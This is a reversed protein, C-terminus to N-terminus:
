YCFPLLYPVDEFFSRPSYTVKIELDGIDAIEHLDTITTEKLDRISERIAWIVIRDDLDDFEDHILLRGLEQDKAEIKSLLIEIIKATINPEIM